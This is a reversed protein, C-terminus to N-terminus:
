RASGSRIADDLKSGAKMGGIAVLGACILMGIIGVGAEVRNGVKYGVIGGGVAGGGWGLDGPVSSDNGGTVLHLAVPGISKFAHM